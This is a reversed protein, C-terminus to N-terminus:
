RSQLESTHEESRWSAGLGFILPLLAIFFQRLAIKM